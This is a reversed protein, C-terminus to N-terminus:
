VDTFLDWATQRSTHAATFRRFSIIHQPHVLCQYHLWNRSLPCHCFLCQCLQVRFVQARIESIICTVDPSVLGDYCASTLTSLVMDRSAAHCAEERTEQIAAM